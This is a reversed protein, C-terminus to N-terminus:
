QDDRCFHAQEHKRERGALLPKGSVRVQRSLLAHAPPFLGGIEGARVGELWGRHGSALFGLQRHAADRSIARSREGGFVSVTQEYTLRVYVYVGLQLVFGCFNFPGIVGPPARDPLLPVAVHYSALGQYDQRAPRPLIQDQGCARELGRLVVIALHRRM